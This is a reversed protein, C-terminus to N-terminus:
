NISEDFKVRERPSDYAILTRPPCVIRCILRSSFSETVGRRKSREVRGLPLTFGTGSVVSHEVAPGTLWTNFTVIGTSVGIM